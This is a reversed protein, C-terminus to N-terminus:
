VYMDKKDHVDIEKWIIHAGMANPGEGNMFLDHMVM